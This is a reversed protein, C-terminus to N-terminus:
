HIPTKLRRRYIAIAVTLAILTLLMPTWTPFEPIVIYQCEYGLDESTITNNVNDEAIIGYTVNTGQPFAPITANWVNGELNTMNVTVWTGDGNTYNLTVQKVGSLEDTVTANVTVEDEPMVNNELPTQSVATINPPTTDVAFYVTGSAGMNGATDNAYV